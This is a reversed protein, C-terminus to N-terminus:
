SETAILEGLQNYVRIQRWQIKGARYPIQQERIIRHFENNMHIESCFDEWMIEESGDPNLETIKYKQKSLMNKVQNAIPRFTPEWKVNDIEDRSIWKGERNHALLINDNDVYSLEANMESYSKTDKEYYIGIDLDFDSLIEEKLSAMMSQYVIHHEKEGHPFEWLDPNNISRCCYIKDNRTFVVCVYYRM